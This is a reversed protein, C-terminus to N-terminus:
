LLCVSVRGSDENERPEYFDVLVSFSFDEALDGDKLLQITLTVSFRTRVPTIVTDTQADYKDRHVQAHTEGVNIDVDMNASLDSGTQQVFSSVSSALAMAFANFREGLTGSQPESLAACLSNYSSSQAYLECLPRLVMSKTHLM